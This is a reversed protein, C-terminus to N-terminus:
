PLNARIIPGTCRQPRPRDRAFLDNEGASGRSVPPRCELRGVIQHVPQLGFRDEPLALFARGSRDPDLRGFGIVGVAPAPLSVQSSNVFLQGEVRQADGHGSTESVRSSCVSLDPASRTSRNFAAPWSSAPLAITLSSTSAMRACTREHTPEGSTSRMMEVPPVPKAGLSTVGSATLGSNRRSISPKEM